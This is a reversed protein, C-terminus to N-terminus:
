MFHIRNKLVKEFKKISIKLITCFREKISSKKSSTLIWRKSKINHFTLMCQILNIMIQITGEKRLLNMVKTMLSNRGADLVYFDPLAYKDCYQTDRLHEM